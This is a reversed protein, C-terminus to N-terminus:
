LDISIWDKMARSEIGGEGRCCEAVGGGSCCEAGKRQRPIPVM